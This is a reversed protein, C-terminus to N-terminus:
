GIRNMRSLNNQHRTQTTADRFKPISTRFDIAVDQSRRSFNQWRSKKPDIANSRSPAQFKFVTWDQLEDDLVPIYVAYPKRRSAIGLCQAEAGRGYMNTSTGRGCVISTGFHAPEQCIEISLDIPNAYRKNARRHRCWTESPKCTTSGSQLERAEQQRQENSLQQQRLM